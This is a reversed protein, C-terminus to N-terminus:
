SLWIKYVRVTAQYGYASIYYSGSISSIDLSLTQRSWSTTEINAVPSAYRPQASTNDTCVAAGSYISESSDTGGEIDVNLTSFNTLDIKQNTYAAAVNSSSGTVHLYMSDAEFTCTVGSGAEFKWGGSNETCQDGENYLYLDTVTVTATRSTVTGAANTVECYFEWTGAATPTLTGSAENAGSIAVGNAYWQYTYDEPYGGSVSVKCTIATHKVVTIDAPYGSDLVPLAQVTLVAMRSTVSGARNTVVCYVSYVGKDSATSRTYSASIAGSVPTDNVYWQYTYESPMGEQDIQVRFAVDTGANVTVDAPFGANLVPLKKAAGTTTNFIM